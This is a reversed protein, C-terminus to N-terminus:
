VRRKLLRVPKAGGSSPLLYFDNGYDTYNEFVVSGNNLCQRPVKSQQNEFLVGEEGSGVVRRYLDSTNGYKRDSSFVLEHGDPSWAPFMANGPDFTVRSLIGSSLDMTWIDARKTQPDSRQVGLLREDPSMVIADYRGPEGVTGLRSGDRKYWVLRRNTPPKAALFSFTTIQLPPFYIAKIPLDRL